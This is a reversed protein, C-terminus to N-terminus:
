EREMHLIKFVKVGNISYPELMPRHLEYPEGRKQADVKGDVTVGNIHPLSARAIALLDRKARLAVLMDPQAYGRGAWLPLEGAVRQGFEVADRLYGLTRASEPPLEAIPIKNVADFLGSWDQDRKYYLYDRMM